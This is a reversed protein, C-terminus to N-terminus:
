NTACFEWDSKMAGALRNSGLEGDATWMCLRPNKPMPQDAILSLVVSFGWPVARDKLASAGPLAKLGISGEKVPLNTDIMMKAGTAGRAWYAAGDVVVTRGDVRLGSIAGSQDEPAASSTFVVTPAFAAGSPWQLAQEVRAEIVITPKVEEVYHAIENFTPQRWLLDTRAFTAALYPLMAMITSDHFILARATRDPLGCEVVVRVIEPSVGLDTHACPLTGGVYAATNTAYPYPNFAMAEALDGTRTPVAAFARRPLDLAQLGAVDDKIRHMLARYGFYGGYANWHSDLIHFLPLEDKESILAARLDLVLSSEGKQALYSMLQDLRTFGGRVISDPMKEPYIAEKNPVVVFYYAIGRQALWDRRGKLAQYWSELFDADFKAEGRFNARDVSWFLFDDKGIIVQRAASRNFLWFQVDQNIRVLEDRFGFHDNFYAQFAGPLQYFEHGRRPMAPFPALVRKEPGTSKAPSFLLLPVAIAVLFGLCIAVDALRRFAM